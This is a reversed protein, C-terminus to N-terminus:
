KHLGCVVMETHSWFRYKVSLFMMNTNCKMVFYAQKESDINVMNYRCWMTGQQLLAKGRHWWLVSSMGTEGHSREYWGVGACLENSAASSSQQTNSAVMKWRENLVARSQNDQNHLDSDRTNTELCEQCCNQHGNSECQRSWHDSMPCTWMFDTSRASTQSEPHARDNTSQLLHCCIIFPPSQLFYVVIFILGQLYCDPSIWYLSAMNGTYSIENHLYSSRLIM